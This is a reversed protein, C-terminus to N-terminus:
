FPWVSFTNAGLLQRMMLRYVLSASISQPFRHDRIYTSLQNLVSIIMQASSFNSLVSLQVSTLVSVMISTAIPIKANFILV